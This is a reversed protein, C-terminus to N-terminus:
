ILMNTSCTIIHIFYLTRSALHTLKMISNHTRILELHVATIQKNLQETSLRVFCLVYWEQRTACLRTINMLWNQLCILLQKSIINMVVSKSVRSSITCDSAESGAAPLSSAGCPESTGSWWRTRARRQGNILFKCLQRSLQQGQHSLSNQTLTSVMLPKVSYNNVYHLTLHRGCSSLTTM